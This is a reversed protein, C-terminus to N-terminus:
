EAVASSGRETELAEADERVPADRIADLVRTALLRMAHHARDLKQRSKAGEDWGRTMREDTEVANESRVRRPAAEHHGERVPVRRGALGLGSSAM